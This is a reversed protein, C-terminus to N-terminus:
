NKQKAFNELFADVNKQKSIWAQDLINTSNTIPRPFEQRYKTVKILVEDFNNLNEGHLLPRRFKADYITSDLLAEVFSIGRSHEKQMGVLIGRYEELPLGYMFTVRNFSYPTQDVSYTIVDRSISVRGLWFSVACLITVIGITIKIKMYIGKSHVFFNQMEFIKRDFSIEGFSLLHFKNVRFNQILFIASLKKLSNSIANIKNAGKCRDM